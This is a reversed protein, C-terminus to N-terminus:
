LLEPYETFVRILEAVSWAQAVCGRPLQGVGNEDADFIESVFGVCGNSLIHRRIPLLHEKICKWNEDTKGYVKVRADVWAGFLFPWVTGQHYTMDRDYQNASDKGDGYRLHYAPANPSLTRLGMPTLLEREVCDLVSKARQGSVLEFPLSIAFLQNPRISADKSGDNNIVDYLCGLDENWFSEFGKQVCDAIDLYMTRRQNADGSLAHLCDLIRLFNYWLANIEVPKGIRPTVAYDGCRADMWTLAYGPVGGTVLSDAHDVHLCYRTGAIHWDVVSDLLPLQEKVFQSDDTMLYYRYLAWAWWFTADATNYQPTMGSDPFNNPLMGESLYKGFTRLIGKATDLRGTALALGPLSIMSDRGWDNFWHYGAIISPSDTSARQVVFSDAALILQKLDEFGSSGNAASELIALEQRIENLHPNVKSANHMLEKHYGAIQEVIQDIDDVHHPADAALSACITISEGNSLNVKIEGAHLNDESDPLGREKERPWFYNWYWEQHERYEGHNFSVVLEPAESNAKMSCRTQSNNTWLSQEFLRGTDGHTEGHFDRDNILLHLSLEIPKYGIWSYGVYVAQKGPLMAVQKILFGHAISYVWTPVPYPSFGVVKKYGEPAVSGSSWFNTALQGGEEQSDTPVVVEDIRSLMLTRSVPPDLAPVFLGHYRRTNAGWINASAYSGLGNSILWERRDDAVKNSVDIKPINLSYRSSGAEHRLWQAIDFNPLVDAKDEIVSAM